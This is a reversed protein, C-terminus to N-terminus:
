VDKFQRVWPINHASGLMNLSLPDNSKLVNFAKAYLTKCFIEDYQFKIEKFLRSVKAINERDPPLLYSFAKHAFSQSPDSELKVKM